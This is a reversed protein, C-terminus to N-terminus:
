DLDKLTKSDIDIIQFSDVKAKFENFKRIDKCIKDLFKQLKNGNFNQDKNIKSLLSQYDDQNGNKEKILSFFDIYLQISNRQEPYEKILDDLSKKSLDDGKLKDAIPNSISNINKQSSSANADMQSKVQQNEPISTSEELVESSYKDINQDTPLYASLEGVIQALTKNSIGQIKISDPSISDLKYILNKFDEQKPYFTFEKLEGFKLSDIKQRKMVSSDIKIMFSKWIKYNTSDVKNKTKNNSFIFFGKTQDKIKPKQNEWSFQYNKLRKFKFDDGELYHEIQEQTIKESKTISFYYWGAFGLSFLLIVGSIISALIKPESIVSKKEYKAVLIGDYEQADRFRPEELSFKKFKYGKHPRILKICDSGDSMYSYEPCDPLKVGHEGGSIKYRKKIIQKIPIQLTECDRPCFKREGEFELDRNKYRAQVTYNNDIESEFFDLEGNRSSKNTQLIRVELEKAQIFREEGEIKGSFVVTKSEELYVELNEINKPCFEKKSSTLNNGKKAVISWTEGIDEGKFVLTSNSKLEKKKGKISVCEVTVGEVKKEKLSSFQVFIEKSDPKLFEEREIVDYALSVKNGDKKLFKHIDSTSDSLKGSVSTFSFFDKEYTLRLEDKARFTNQLRDDSLLRGNSFLKGPKFRDFGTLYFYDNTFDINKLETGSNRIVKLINKVVSDGENKIFIVQKFPEYEQQFPFEFFKEMEGKDNFLIFAAEETGQKGYTNLFDKRKVLSKKKLFDSVFGWEEKIIRESEGKNINNDDIYQMSYFLTLDDLLELIDKGGNVFAENASLYVSFSIIGTAFSRISDRVILTKSYVYGEGESNVAYIFKGVADESSSNNRVDKAISPAGDTQYLTNFGGKTGCIVIHM